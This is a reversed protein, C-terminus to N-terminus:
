LLYIKEEMKEEPASIIQSASATKLPHRRYFVMFCAVVVAGAALGAGLVVPVIKEPAAWGLTKLVAQALGCGCLFAAFAGLTLAMTRDKERDGETEIIIWDDKKAGCLNRVKIEEFSRCSVSGCCSGGMTRVTLTEVLAMDGHIEKVQGRKRTM